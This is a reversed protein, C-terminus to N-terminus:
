TSLFRHNAPAISPADRPVSAAALASAGVARLTACSASARSAVRALRVRERWVEVLRNGDCGVNKIEWAPIEGVMLM